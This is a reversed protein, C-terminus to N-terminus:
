PTVEESKVGARGLKKSYACEIINNSACFFIRPKSQAQSISCMGDGVVLGERVSRDGGQGAGGCGRGSWRPNWRFAVMLNTVRIKVRVNVCRITAKGQFDRAM